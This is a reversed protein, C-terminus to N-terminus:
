LTTPPIQHQVVDRPILDLIGVNLPSPFVISPRVIFHKLQIQV